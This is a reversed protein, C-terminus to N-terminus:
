VNLSNFVSSVGVATIATIALGTSMLAYIKLFYQRLGEYYTTQSSLKYNEDTYDFKEM